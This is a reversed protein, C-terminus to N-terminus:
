SDVDNYELYRNIATVDEVTGMIEVTRIVDVGCKEATVYAGLCFGAGFNINGCGVVARILSRNKADNLFHIVPKPVCGKYEGGGYTPFVLIYPNEVSLRQDSQLPIRHASANLRQVFRKTNESKTSFYVIEM